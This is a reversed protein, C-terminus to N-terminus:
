IKIFHFEFAKDLLMEIFSFIYVNLQYGKLPAWYFQHLLDFGLHNM